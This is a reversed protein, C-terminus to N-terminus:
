TEDTEFHPCLGDYEGGVDSGGLVVESTEGVLKLEPVVYQEEM